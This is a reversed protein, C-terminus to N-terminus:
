TMDRRRCGGEGDSPYEQDGSIGLSGKLGRHIGFAEFTNRKHLHERNHSSNLGSNICNYGIYRVPNRLRSAALFSVPSKLVPVLARALTSGSKLFPYTGVSVGDAESRERRKIQDIM